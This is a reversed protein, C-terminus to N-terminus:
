LMIIKNKLEALDPHQNLDLKATAWDFFQSLSIYHNNVKQMAKQIDKGHFWILYLKKEWFEPQDFQRKYKDLSVDFKTHTIAGVSAQFRNIMELAETKCDSFDMSSPLTGSGDTWTTKLQTRAAGLNVLSALAWRVIQYWLIEKAGNEIWTSINKIGPSNGHGWRSSPNTLKENYKEVWYNHMLEADLLYNEICARHTMLAPNKNIQLLKRDETPESDFDRDRFVIFRNSCAGSSCFYGQAFISFTFKSGAPVITSRDGPLGDILNNLLKYDLSTQKGECFIIKSGDIVAM